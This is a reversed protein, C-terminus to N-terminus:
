YSNHSYYRINVEDQLELIMEAIDSAEDESLREIFAGAPETEDLNSYIEIEEIIDNLKDMDEQNYRDPAENVTKQLPLLGYRYCSLLREKIRSRGTCLAKVGLGIQELFYFTNHM